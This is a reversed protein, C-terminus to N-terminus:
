ERYLNYIKEDLWAPKGRHGRIRRAMLLAYTEAIQPPVAHDAIPHTELHRINPDLSLYQTRTISPQQATPSDTVGDLM